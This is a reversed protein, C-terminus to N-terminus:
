LRTIITVIVAATSAVSAMVSIFERADMRDREPKQPIIIEAGPDIQPNSKFFLFNKRAEVSGNAYVVYARRKLADDAFGGSRNVYYKLNRGERHRVEVERLVAGSVKITQLELPVRIVDGERLFIDDVSGPRSLIRPLNIGVFNEQQDNSDMIEGFGSIFDVEVRELQGIDRILTAGEPYAEQTLGGARRILDSIRENRNALTYTGPYMVEGEITVNQQVHYDPKHRVYVQDFPQLKFQKDTEKMSLNRSVEFVFTEALRNGRRVPTPEGIIRRFVEIRAESASERFGNAKLILDELTMNDRFPYEGIERVAGEILVTFEERMDFLTQIIVEDEPRLPINYEDPNSMLRELDFSLLDFDFNDKLRNIIARSAYADPRLGEAEVILDYVSMGERLEFEGPRWVAGSINVRNEFRDLVQDVFVVDGNRLEFTPYDSDRVSIIRRETPTYRHIRLQRTYASDAFHGAFQILNSLNEEEKMEYLGERKVRGQVDVRALYPEVMIIDQDHLRINNGQNGHILLDYIDLVTAVENGRIVKISRYSGINNPGRSNYLANFVTALSSLTYNGPSNVEGMVTVQISRLQGLHVRAFTTQNASGPRLGRYLTRLKEIIRDSAEEMSLGHVYIPGLNEITVTGQNSVELRHVNTAEGWIDVVIEDGPGLQYNVPTPVNMSPEFTLQEQRFLRAGFIRSDTEDLDDDPPAITDNVPDETQTLRRDDFDQRMREAELERIRRALTEAESAPLGRLRAMQIAEEASMGQAKGQDIFRRLQANSINASRVTSLDRVDLPSQADADFAGLFLLSSLFIIAYLRISKAKILISKNM